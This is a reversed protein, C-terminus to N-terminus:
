MMHRFNTFASLTQTKTMEIRNWSTRNVESKELDKLM